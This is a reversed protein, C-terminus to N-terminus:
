DDTEKESEKITEFSLYFDNKIIAVWNLDTHLPVGRVAVREMIAVWRSDGYNNNSNPFFCSLYPCEEIAFILMLITM